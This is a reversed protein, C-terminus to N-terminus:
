TGPSARPWWRRGKAGFHHSLNHFDDKVGLLTYANMFSQAMTFMLSISRTLDCTFAMAALDAFIRARAEEDSYGNNTTLGSETREDKRSAGIAPDNGPDPLMRCAAGAAGSTPPVADIRRELERIETLHQDLRQRDTGGLKAVLAATRGEVLDLVSKRQALLAKRRQAEIPDDTAFGTFLSGFAAHGAVARAAAAADLRQV